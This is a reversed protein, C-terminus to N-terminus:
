PSIRRCRTECANPSLAPTASQALAQQSAGPSATLAGIKLRSGLFGAAIILLIAPITLWYYRRM